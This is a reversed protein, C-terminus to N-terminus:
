YGRLNRFIPLIHTLKLIKIILKYIPSKKYKPIWSGAYWHICYTNPTINLKGKQTEANWLFPNFYENELISIGNYKGVSISKNYYNKYCLSIFQPLPMFNTKNKLEELVYGIFEHKPIAAIFLAGIQTSELGFIIDSNFLSNPKKLLEVDLDMYLGGYNYLAWIRVYDAVFAWKKAKIANKVTKIEMVEQPLTQSNWLMYDYEPILKKWSNYCKKTKNDWADNSMWCYHVILPINTKM